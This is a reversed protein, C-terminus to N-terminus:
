GSDQEHGNEKHHNGIDSAVIFLGAIVLGMGVALLTLLVLVWAYGM